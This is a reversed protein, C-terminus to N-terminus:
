SVTERLKFYKDIDQDDPYVFKSYDISINNRILDILQNGLIIHNKEIMHNRRLDYYNELKKMYKESTDLNFTVNEKLYINGLSDQCHVNGFSNYFVPILIVNPAINVIDSVIREQVYCDYDDRKLYKFHSIAALIKEIKENNTSSKILKPNNEHNYLLNLCSDLNPYHDHEDDDLSIRGPHTLFWLVTEQGTYYLKFLKFQSWLDSGGIGHSIVREFLESNRLVSHYSVTNHVLDHYQHGRPYAILQEEAYSDGFILLNKKM